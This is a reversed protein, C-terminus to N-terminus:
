DRMMRVALLPHVRTLRTCTTARTQRCLMKTELSGLTKEAVNTCHLICAPSSSELWPSSLHISCMMASECYKHLSGDDPRAISVSICMSVSTCQSCTMALFICPSFLCPLSSWALDYSISHNSQLASLLLVRLDRFDRRGREMSIM